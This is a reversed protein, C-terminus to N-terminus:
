QEVELRECVIERVRSYPFGNALHVPISLMYDVSSPLEVLHLASLDSAWVELLEADSFSEPNRSCLEGRVAQAFCLADDCVRDLEGASTITFVRAPFRHHIEVALIPFHLDQFRFDPSLRPAGLAKRFLPNRVTVVSVLQMNYHKKPYSPITFPHYKM